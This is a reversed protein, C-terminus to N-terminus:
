RKYGDLASHRAAREEFTLYMNARPDDLSVWDYMYRGNSVVMAGGHTEHVRIQVGHKKTERRDGARPKKRQPGLVIIRTNAWPNHNPAQREAM